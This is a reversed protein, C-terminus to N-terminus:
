GVASRPVFLGFHPYDSFDTTGLLPISDWQSDMWRYVVDHDWMQRDPQDIIGIRRIRVHRPGDLSLLEYMNGSSSFRIEGVEFEDVLM